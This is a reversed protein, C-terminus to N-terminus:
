ENSLHGLIFDTKVYSNMELRREEIYIKKGRFKGKVAEFYKQPNPRLIGDKEIHKPRERVEVYNNVMRGNRKIIRDVWRIFYRKKRNVFFEWDLDKEYEIEDGEKLQIDLNKNDSAIVTAKTTHNKDRKGMVADMLMDESVDTVISKSDKEEVDILVCKYPQINDEDGWGIIMDDTVIYYDKGNFKSLSDYAQYMVYVTEGIPITNFHPAAVLKGYFPKSQYIDGEEDPMYLKTGNPTMIWRNEEIDVEIYYTNTPKFKSIDEVFFSM